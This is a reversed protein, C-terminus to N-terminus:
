DDGGLPAQVLAIRGAAGFSAIQDAGEKPVLLNLRTGAGEVYDVSVVTAGDALVQPSGLQDPSSADGAPPVALVRVVDGPALGSPARTADLQVGVVREGPGPVQATALMAQNLIQGPVLEVAATSGVVDDVDGFGLAGDVGAVEIVKLDSREIVSGAPVDHALALAEVRDSKQQWLWGAILVAIAIFLVAGTWQGYRRPIRPMERSLNGPKPAAGQSRTGVGQAATPGKTDTDATV